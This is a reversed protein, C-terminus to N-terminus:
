EESLIQIEDVPISIRKYGIKTGSSKGLGLENLKREIMKPAYKRICEKAYEKFHIGEIWKITVYRRHPTYVEWGENIAEDMLSRSRTNKTPNGRFSVHHGFKGNSGRRYVLDSYDRLVYTVYIKNGVTRTMEEIVNSLNHADAFTGLFGGNEGLRDYYLSTPRNYLTKAVYDKVMKTIEIAVDQMIEKSVGRVYAELKKQFESTLEM